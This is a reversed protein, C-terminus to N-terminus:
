ALTALDKLVIQVAEQAGCSIFKKAFPVVLLQSKAFKLM